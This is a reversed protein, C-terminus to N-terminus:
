KKEKLGLEVPGNGPRVQPKPSPAKGSRRPREKTPLKARLADLGAVTLRIEGENREIWGNRVLSALLRDGASVSITSLKRWADTRLRQMLQRQTANPLPDTKAEGGLATPENQKLRVARAKTAIITRGLQRAIDHEGVGEKTLRMLEADEAPTWRKLKILTAEGEAGDRGTPSPPIM